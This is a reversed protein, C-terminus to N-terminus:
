KRGNRKKKRKKRSKFFLKRVWLVFIVVIVIGAAILLYFKVSQKRNLQKVEKKAQEESYPVRKGTVLLRHTNIMYPTCTLLTMLDQNEQVVLDKTETPLVTKINVVEYKLTEVFNDVLFYDKMKLENLNTFLLQSALGSHGTIVSHTNAGGAPYSTGQLLTAGEDLLQDTTEDFIPLGVKIKPIYIQGILHNQFEEKTLSNLEDENVDFMNEKLGIVNTSSNKQQEQKEKVQQKKEKLFQEKNEKAITAVMKNAYFTNVADSLFPYFFVVVGSIFLFVIMVKLLADVRKIKKM